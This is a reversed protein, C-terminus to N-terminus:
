LRAGIPRPQSWLGLTTLSHRFSSRERFGVPSPVLRFLRRVSRAPAAPCLEFAYHSLVSPPQPHVNGLTQFCHPRFSEPLGSNLRSRRRIRGYVPFALDLQIPPLLSHGRSVRPLRCARPSVLPASDESAARRKKPSAFIAYGKRGARKVAFMATDVDRRLWEADDAHASYGAVGFSIGVYDRVGESVDVGWLVSM